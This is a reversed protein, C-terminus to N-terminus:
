SGTAATSAADPGDAPAAPAEGTLIAKTLVQGGIGWGGDVVEDVLVMTTARAREGFLRAYMDTVQTVLDHKQAEDVLGAPVKLNAFPMVERRRQSPLSDPEVPKRPQQRRYAPRRPHGPPLVRDPDCTSGSTRGHEALAEEAPANRGATERIGAHVVHGAAALARASLAGIGSSAGAVLVSQSTSM